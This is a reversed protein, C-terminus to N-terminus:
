GPIGEAFGPVMRDAHWRGKGNEQHNDIVLTVCLPISEFLMRFFGRRFGASGTVYAATPPPLTAQGRRGFLIVAAGLYRFFSAPDGDGADIQYWVGPVGNADLWTAVLRTKGRSPPGDMYFVARRRARGADLWAFLRDRQVAMFLLPRMLKVLM